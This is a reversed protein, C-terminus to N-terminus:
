GFCTWRFSLKFFSNWENDIKRSPNVLNATKDTIKTLKELLEGESGQISLNFDSLKFTQIPDNESPKIVSDYTQFEIKFETLSNTSFGYLEM